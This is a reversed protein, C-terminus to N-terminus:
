AAIPAAALEGPWMLQYAAAGALRPRIALRTSTWLHHRPSRRRRRIGTQGHGPRGVADVGLLRETATEDGVHDPDAVRYSTGRGDVQVEDTRQQAVQGLHARVERGAVQADVVAAPLHEAVDRPPHRPPVGLIPPEEGIRRQRVMSASASRSTGAM